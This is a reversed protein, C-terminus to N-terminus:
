ERSTDEQDDKLRHQSWADIYETPPSKQGLGVRLRRYRGIRVISILLVAIFFGAMLLIITLLMFRYRRRDLQERDPEASPGRRKQLDNTQRQITHNNSKQLTTLRDTEAPTDEVAAISVPVCFMVLAMMFVAFGTLVSCYLWKKEALM